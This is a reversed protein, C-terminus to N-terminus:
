LKDYEADKSNDWADRLAVEQAKLWDANADDDDDDFIVLVERRGRLPLDRPLIIRKGDFEAKVARM